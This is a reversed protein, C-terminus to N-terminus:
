AGRERAIGAIGVTIVTCCVATFYIDLGIYIIASSAAVRDVIEVPASCIRTGIAHGNM